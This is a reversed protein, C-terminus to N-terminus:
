ALDLHRLVADRVACCSAEEGSIGTEHQTIMVPQHEADQEIRGHSGRVLKADLPVVDMLMRVGLSKQMLRWAVKLKPWRIAPDIFLELPDYGPKRHIDVTRAFDPAKADDLWYHYSFWRRAEAILLLDGARSHDIGADVKGQGDLVSAVGPVGRCLDAVRPVQEAERVYVHAVQHDAVAFAQSAGADLLELGQEDRVRLFGASRLVRNIPVADDVSEIGYESVIMVRVGQGGFYDLLQGVLTDVKAVEAHIEAHGPGLKQLAYDLHPLYVLTLTPHHQEHVIRAADAIWRSSEISAGPGWFKFLPFQGLKKQLDRRLEVPESYVDPIKRGDAKYMPRPTVSWDASSYMNYWWFLNACTFRNDARGASESGRAAALRRATEWVKEGQVLRNSQKWFQVEALDRDYWGNGVIGHGHPPLGTLMSSQVSCTVAPLVPRLRTIRGKEAFAKLRPSWPGILSRNLGVVLLVATPTM